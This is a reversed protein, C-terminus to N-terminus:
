NGNSLFNTEALAVDAETDDDVGSLWEAHHHACLYREDYHGDPGPNQQCDITAYQQCNPHQCDAVVQGTGDCDHCRVRKTHSTWDAAFTAIPVDQYGEGDCEVCERKIHSM